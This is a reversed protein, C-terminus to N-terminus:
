SLMNIMLICLSKPLKKIRDLLSPFIWVTIMLLFLAQRLLIGIAKMMGLGVKVLDVTMLNVLIMLATIVVFYGLMVIMGVQSAIYPLSLFGVGIMGGSFVAIPYIYNKFLGKIMNM